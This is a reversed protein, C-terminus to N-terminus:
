WRWTAAVSVQRRSGPTGPVEEFDEDWLNDAVASLELGEISPPRVVVGLRTFFASDSGERLLNEEQQRWENDARVEVVDLPRWVLAATARHEPFNLAYFSGDVGARGYDEDKSLFAYSGLLEFRNWARSAIVEVGFTKIDVADASRATTSVDADFTWDVLDDDWRHFVAAEVRWPGRELKGGLELNRGTERDLDPNSAFLGAEPGGIATYGPVQTAEAYSLYISEASDARRRREWRMEVLPSVASDDRDSDDFAAGGRLLLSEGAGLGIRYEPALSLKYYTRETFPGRELTTSAIEDGTVQGAYRLAAADSLRVLGDLAAAAVRTEHVFARTPAFRNFEYNDSHRRYYATAEFHGRWGFDQRHNVLYLRTKLNESENSGFPAAYLEPWGFFKSQYGAFLDTQSSPGALQLRGAYRAFDHDGYRVSGDSESRSFEAEAGWTWADGRLPGTWASHLRQFNLDNDGVGATLSGGAVIRSWGFAVTGVSSNFGARANDFGTLVEPGELM